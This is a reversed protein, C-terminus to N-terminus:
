KVANKTKVRNMASLIKDKQEKDNIMKQKLEKRKKALMEARELKNRELRYERYEFRERAIDAQKQEKTQKRYLSKAFTFYDVLEIDSPCVYTCCNCEICDLLKYNIAKDINESKAYWYLQQPLLNIPCSQNCQGCRICEKAIPKQKAKNVFICNTTKCIAIKTDKIDIGMMMGGMRVDYNDTNPKSLNIIHSFSSGIRVEYNTPNDISSGTVTIIRSILPKKITIADFIAKTTAINQCLIGFNVPFKGSQIETGLLHKILIKESGSTYKTPIKKIKVVDNNNYKSLIEFSKKKDDEIAIIVNKAGTIHLLIEIGGLIEKAYNQMLADDCMIGPECESGNIIITKCNKINELKAHTPFGAGGLGVIAANKICNILELKDKNLFNDVYNSKEIWNDKGDSEITISKIKLGSKHPIVQNNIATVTGSISSHVPTGISDQPTAIIQGTLVKEGIKVCPIAQNNTYQQQLSLVIKNPLPAKIINTSITKYNNPVVIGKTYKKDLM